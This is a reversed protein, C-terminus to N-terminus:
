QLLYQFRGLLLNDMTQADRTCFRLRRCLRDARGFAQTRDEDTKFQVISRVNNIGLVDFGEGMDDTNILVVCIRETDKKEECQGHWLKTFDTMNTM